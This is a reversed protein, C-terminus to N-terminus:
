EVEMLKVKVIEYKKALLGSHTAYQQLLKEVEQKSMQRFSWALIKNGEKIAWGDYKDTM